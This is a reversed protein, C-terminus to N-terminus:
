RARCGAESPCVTQPGARVPVAATSAASRAPATGSNQRPRGGRPPPAPRGAKEWEVFTNTRAHVFEQVPDASYTWPVGGIHGGVAYFQEVAEAYRETRRVTRIGLECCDAAFISMGAARPSSPPM